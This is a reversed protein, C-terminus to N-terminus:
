VTQMEKMLVREAAKEGQLFAQDTWIYTWTGYRGCYAVGIDDLYGHVRELSDKRDHDFIVNAYKMHMAHKMDIEDDDRLVGCRILDRIVPEILDGPKCDMPRYKDSYYVEAQLCSHGPPANNPSQLHPTSLRAFCIDEDYFYSWHADHVDARKIGLSVVV